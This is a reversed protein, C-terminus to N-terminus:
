ISDYLIPEFLFKKHGFCEHILDETIKKVLNKAVMEKEITINENLAIKEYGQYLKEENITVGGTIMNTLACNNSDSLSYFSIVSPIMEKLHAKLDLPGIMDFIFM